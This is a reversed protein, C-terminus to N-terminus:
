SFMIQAFQEVVKGTGYTSYICRKCSNHSVLVLCQIQGSAGQEIDRDSSTCIVYKNLVPIIIAQEIDRLFIAILIVDINNKYGLSTLAMIMGPCGFFSCDSKKSLRRHALFPSNKKRASYYNEDIKM